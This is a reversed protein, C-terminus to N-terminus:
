CSRQSIIQEVIGWRHRGAISNIRPTKGPRFIVSYCHHAGTSLTNLSVAVHIRSSKASLDPMMVKNLKEYSPWM